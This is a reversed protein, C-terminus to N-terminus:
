WEMTQITTGSVYADYVIGNGQNGVSRLFVTSGVIQGQGNYAPALAYTSNGVAVAQGFSNTITQLGYQSGIQNFITIFNNNNISGIGNKLIYQAIAYAASQASGLSGSSTPPSSSTPTSSSTSTGQSNGIVQISIKNSEIVM